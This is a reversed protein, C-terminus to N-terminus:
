AITIRRLFSEILDYGDWTLSFETTSGFPVIRDIGPLSHRAVLNELAERDVGFYALTQYRRTVIPAIEDLSGALYETFYGGICRYDEIGPAMTTMTVM